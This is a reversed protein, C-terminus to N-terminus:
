PLDWDEPKDNPNRKKVVITAEGNVAVPLTRLKLTFGGDKIPFAAGLRSWGTRTEGNHEYEHPALADWREKQEQDSM